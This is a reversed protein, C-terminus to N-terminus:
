GRENPKGAERGCEFRERLVAFNMKVNVLEVIDIMRTEIEKLFPFGFAGARSGGHPDLPALELMAIVRRVDQIRRGLLMGIRRLINSEQIEQAGFADQDVGHEVIFVMRDFDQRLMHCTNM